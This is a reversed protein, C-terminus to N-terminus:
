IMVIEYNKNLKYAYSCANELYDSQFNITWDPDISYICYDDDYDDDGNVYEYFKAIIIIREHYTKFSTIVGYNNFCDDSFVMGLGIPNGYNEISRDDKMHVLQGCFKETLFKAMKDLEM